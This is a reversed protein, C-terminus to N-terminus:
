PKSILLLTEKRKNRKIIQKRIHLHPFINSVDILPAVCYICFICYVGLTVSIPSFFM